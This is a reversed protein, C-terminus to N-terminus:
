MKLIEVVVVVAVATVHDITMNKTKNKIDFPFSDM